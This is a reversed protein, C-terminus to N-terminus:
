KTLDNIKGLRKLEKDDLYILEKQLKEKFYEVNISESSKISSMIDNLLKDSNNIQRLLESVKEVEPMPIKEMYYELNYIVEVVQKDIDIKNHIIYNTIEVFCEDMVSRELRYLYPFVLRFSDESQFIEIFEKKDMKEIYSKGIVFEKLENTESEDEYEELTRKAEKVSEKQIKNSMKVMVSKLEDFEINQHGLILPLKKEGLRIITTGFSTIEHLKLNILDWWDFKDDHYQQVQPFKSKADEYRKYNTRIIDFKLKM